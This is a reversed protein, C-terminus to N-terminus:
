FNGGNVVEQVTVTPGGEWNGTAANFVLLSGDVAATVDVDVISDFSGAFAAEVYELSAWATAGDGVKLRRTDTEVALEGALLVPNSAAWQAQTARRLRIRQRPVGM